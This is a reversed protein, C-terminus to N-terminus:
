FNSLTLFGSDAKEGINNPSLVQKDALLKITMTQLSDMM